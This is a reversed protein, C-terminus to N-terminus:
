FIQSILSKPNLVISKKETELVVSDIKNLESVIKNRQDKIYLSIFCKLIKLNLGTRSNEKGTIHRFDLYRSDLNHYLYYPEVKERNAIIAAVSQNTCLFKM